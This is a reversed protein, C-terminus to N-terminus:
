TEKGTKMMGNIENERGAGKHADRWCWHTPLERYAKAKM